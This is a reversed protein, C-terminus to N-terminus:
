DKKIKQKLLYVSEEHNSAIAMIMDDMGLTLAGDAEFSDYAAQSFKLFDNECALSAQAPAVGVVNNYKSMVKGLLDIQTEYDLCEDGLVGIFKEAAADLDKLTSDYLRDFLLHDGYFPIGKTTWHSHKHILAIAQLSAVYLAAIKVSKEM